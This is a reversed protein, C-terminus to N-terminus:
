FIICKPLNCCDGKKQIGEFITPTKEIEGNMESNPEEYLENSKNDEKDNIEKVKDEEYKKEYKLNGSFIKDEDNNEIIDRKYINNIKVSDNKIEFSDKKGKSMKSISNKHTYMNIGSNNTIKSQADQYVSSESRKTMNKKSYNNIKSQAEQYLSFTNTKSQIDIKSQADEYVESDVM